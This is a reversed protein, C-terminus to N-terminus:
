AGVPASEVEDDHAQDAATLATRVDLLLNSMEDTSVLERHLLESLSKDILRVADSIAADGAVHTTDRLQTM